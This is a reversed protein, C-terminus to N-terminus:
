PCDCSVINQGDIIVAGGPQTSNLITDLGTRGVFGATTTPQASSGAALRLLVCMATAATAVTM